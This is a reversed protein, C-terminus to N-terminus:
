RNQGCEWFIHLIDDAFQNANSQLREAASIMRVKYGDDDCYPTYSITKRTLNEEYYDILKVKLDTM